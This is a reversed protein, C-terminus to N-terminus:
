RGGAVKWGEPTRCMNWETRASRGGAVLDFVIARCTMGQRDFAALPTFTGSASTSPNNWRFVQGDQGEDLAKRMVPVAVAFDEQTMRSIPADKAFLENQALAAASTAIAAIGAAAAIGRVFRTM